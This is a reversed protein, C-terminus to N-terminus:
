YISFSYEVLRSVTLPINDKEEPFFRILRASRIAQENLGDPLGKGVISLKGISGDSEFTVRIRVTGNTGNRRAEETYTPTPKYTIYLSDSDDPKPGDPKRQSSEENETEVLFPTDALASILKTKESIKGNLPNELFVVQRQNLSLSSLFYRLTENNTDKAAGFIHYIADKQGMVMQYWYSKESSKSFSKGEFGNLPLQHIEGTGSYIGAFLDIADKGGDTEYKIISFTAGNLSATIFRINRYKYQRFDGKSTIKKSVLKARKFGKKDSFVQYNPPVAVSFDKSDSELRIWTRNEANQGNTVSVFGSFLLLTGSLIWKGM